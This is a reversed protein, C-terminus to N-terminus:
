SHKVQIAKIHPVILADGGEIRVEVDTPLDELWSYNWESDSTRISISTLYYTGDAVDLPVKCSLAVSSENTAVDANCRFASAMGRQASSIPDYTQWNLYAAQVKVNAAFQTEILLVSGRKVSHRPTAMAVPGGLFSLLAIALLQRSKM